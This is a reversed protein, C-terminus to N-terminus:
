HRERKGLLGEEKTTRAGERRAERMEVLRKWASMEAGGAERRGFVRCSREGGGAACSVNVMDTMRDAYVKRM